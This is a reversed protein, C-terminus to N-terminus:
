FKNLVDNLNLNVGWTCSEGIESFKLFARALCPMCFILHECDGCINKEPTKIEGVIAGFNKAFIDSLNEKYINGWSLIKEDGMGCLKMDGQPTITLSRSGVGCNGRESLNYIPHHEPMKFIFDAFEVRVKEMEKLFINMDEQKFILEPFKEGRGMPTVPSIGITYMGLNYNHELPKFPIGLSSALEVTEFINNMNFPTVMMVVRLHFKRDTIQKIVKKSRKFANKYGCFWDMYKEDASHLGVQFVIKSKYKQLSDLLKETILSGNTIVAVVDFTELSFKLIKEFDPHSLPEGGSLEIIAVGNKRFELLIDLLEETKAYNDKKANSDRYCHRCTYNCYDTLELSLHVPTQIDPNIWYKDDVPRRKDSTGIFEQSNIYDLIIKNIEYVDENYISALDNSIKDISEKGNCRIVIDSGDKNLHFYKNENKSYIYSIPGPRFYFNEKIYPYIDQM